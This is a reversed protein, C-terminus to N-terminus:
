VGTVADKDIPYANGCENNCEEETVVPYKRDKHEDTKDNTGDSRKEDPIPNRVFWVRARMPNYDQSIRKEFYRQNKLTKQRHAHCVEHIEWVKFSPLCDGLHLLFIGMVIACVTIRPTWNPETRPVKGITVVVPM